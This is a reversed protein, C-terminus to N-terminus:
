HILYFILNKKNNICIYSTEDWLLTVSTIFDCIISKLRKNGKFLVSCRYIRRRTCCPLSCYWGYLFVWFCRVYTEKLNQVDSDKLSHSTHTELSKFANKVRSGFLFGMSRRCYYNHTEFGGRRRKEMAKYIKWIRSWALGNWKRKAIESGVTCM